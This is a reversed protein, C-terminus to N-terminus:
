RGPQHALDRLRVIEAEAAALREELAVVTAPVWDDFVNAPVSLRRRLESSEAGVYFRNLGDFLALEYGAALLIPEWDHHSPEPSNPRTAEVVVVQPRWRRWDAGALAEREHGEVDVKLFDIPQDGVHEALIEALTRVRVTTTSPAAGAWVERAVEASLSSGGAHEFPGLYFTAEGARDGVAVGVNVDEPRHERLLALFGPHPEVNVGRWGLDYFHKTVSHDVPHAAGVDVYRGRTRGPFARALVVDEANQAFSVIM